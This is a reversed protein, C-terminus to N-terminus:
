AVVVNLLFNDVSFQLLFSNIRGHKTLLFSEFTKFGYRISDMFKKACRTRYSSVPKSTTIKLLKYRREKKMECCLPFSRCNCTHLDYFLNSNRYLM